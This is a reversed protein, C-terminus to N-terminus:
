RVSECVAPYHAIGFGAIDIMCRINFFLLAGTLICFIIQKVTGSPIRDILLTLLVAFAWSFYLSYLVTGNERMGWGSLCILIVAFAVWYLSIKAIYKHRSLFGSCISLTLLAIGAMSFSNEMCPRYAMYEGASIAQGCPAVFCSSVFRTFRGLREIFAIDQGAFEGYSALLHKLKYIVEMMGGCIFVSLFLLLIKWGKKVIMRLERNFAMLPPILVASTLLSGTAAVSLVSNVRRTMYSNYILVTMWFVAFVYQEMNLAFLMFPFTAVSMLLFGTKSTKGVELMRGLLIVSVFLLFVQIINIAVPYSCAYPFLFSVAKAALGFPLAFIGFLPQRLDNEPATPNTYCDRSVIAGTDSTYIVDFLVPDGGNVSPLYFVNTRTFLAITVAAFVASGAYLFVKEHPALERFFKILTNQLRGSLGIFVFCLSIAAFIMVPAIILARNSLFLSIYPEYSALSSINENEFKDILFNLSEYRAPVFAVSLIISVAIGTRSGNALAKEVVGYKFAALWWIISCLVFEAAYYVAPVPRASWLLTLTIGSLFFVSPLFRNAGSIKLNKEM